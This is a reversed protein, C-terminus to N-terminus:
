AGRLAAAQIPQKAYYIVDTSFLHTHRNFTIVDGDTFERNHLIIRVGAFNLKELKTLMDHTAAYHTRDYHLNHPQYIEM